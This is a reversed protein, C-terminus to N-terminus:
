ITIKNEVNKVKFFNIFSYRKFGNKVAKVEHILDSKSFDMISFTGLLPKVTHQTSSNTTIILEGGGNNYDAESSLYMILVCLRGNSYGDKHDSIFHDDEYLTFDGMRDSDDIVTDPYLTNVIKKSLSYFYQHYENSMSFEYWKQVTRLDNEKIFLDRELIQNLPISHEYSQLEPAYDYRCKLISERDSEVYSCIGKIKSEVQTMENADIFDYLNGVYAGEELFSSLPIPTSNM